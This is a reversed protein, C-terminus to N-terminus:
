GLRISRVLGHPQLPLKLGWAGKDVPFRDAYSPNDATVLTIHNRGVHLRGKVDFLCPTGFDTGVTEGNVILTTCDGTAPVELVEWERDCDLEAEYRYEACARTAKRLERQLAEATGKGVLHGETEGAEQVTLTYELMVEQLVPLEYRFPPADTTEMGFFLVLLQQPRLKLRVGDATEELRFLMNTWPDYILAAGAVPKAVVTEITHLGENLFVVRERGGPMRLCYFRLDPAPAMKLHPPCVGKVCAPLDVTSVVRFRSDALRADAGKETRRPRRDTMLIPLGAEAFRTLVDLLASPMASAGPLVLCSFSVGSEWLRGDRVEANQLMDLSLFDFDLNARTLAMAPETMDQADADLWACEANYFVAVDPVHTGGCLLDATRQVHAVLSAFARYQPNFGAGDFSPPLFTTCYDPPLSSFDLDSRAVGQQFCSPVVMSFAHPVFYNVGNALCHNFIARMTALGATWGYGGMVEAMLRGQMRPNHAALSSGLRGLTYQYFAANARGREDDERVHSVRPIGPVMQNLVFDIGAMDQGDMTRLLHGCGFGMYLHATEDELYHGIYQVGHARCWTGIQQTFNERWLRTIINMYALQYRESAGQVDNWLAPLNAVVEECSVGLETALRSPMDDWWAVLQKLNGLRNHKFHEDYDGNCNGFGPEDTFFGKFTKGFHRGCRAYMKEYIEDILHRCSEKSLMSIYRSWFGQREPAANIIFFVRWLGEDFAIPLLGDQAGGLAVPGPLCAGTEEDRRYAVAELLTEGESMPPLYLAGYQPGVVDVASARLNKQRFRANEPQKLTNNACGTPVHSDDLLWVEMGLEEAKAFLRELLSWWRETNFWDGGRDEITVSRIGSARISELARCLMEPPEGAYWLFPMFHNATRNELVAKLDDM